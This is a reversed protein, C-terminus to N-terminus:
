NGPAFPYFGTTDDFQMQVHNEREEYVDEVVGGGDMQGSTERSSTIKHTAKVKNRIKIGRADINDPKKETYVM